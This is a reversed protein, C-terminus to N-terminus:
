IVHEYACNHRHPFIGLSIISRRRLPRGILSPSENETCITPLRACASQPPSPLSSPRARRPATSGACDTKGRSFLVREYRWRDVEERVRTCLQAGYWPISAKILRAAFYFRIYSHAWREAKEASFFVSIAVSVHMSCSVAISRRSRGLAVGKM